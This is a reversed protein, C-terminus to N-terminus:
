KEIKLSITMAGEASGGNFSYNLFAFYVDGARKVRELNMTAYVDYDFEKSVSNRFRVTSEVALANEKMLKLYREFPIVEGFKGQALWEGFSVFALQNICLQAEVVTM